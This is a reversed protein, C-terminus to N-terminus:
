RGRLDSRQACREHQHDNLVQRLRERLSLIEQSLMAITNVPPGDCFGGQAWIRLIEDGFISSM